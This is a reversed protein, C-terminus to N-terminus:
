KVTRIQRMKRMSSLLLRKLDDIKDAFRLKGTRYEKRSKKFNKYIEARWEEILYKELLEKLQLKMEIPMVKIEEIINEFKM